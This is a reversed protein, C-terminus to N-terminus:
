NKNLIMLWSCSLYGSRGNPLPILFYFQQNFTGRLGNVYPENYALCIINKKFKQITLVVYNETYM